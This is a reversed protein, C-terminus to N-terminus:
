QEYTAQIAGSSATTRIAKFNKIADDGMIVVVDNANLVHGVTTTPTTGDYCYRMQATECTCVVRSARVQTANSNMYNTSTFGIATDAVTIAEYTYPKYVGVTLNAWNQQM